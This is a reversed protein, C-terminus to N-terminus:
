LPVAYVGYIETDCNALFILKGMDYISVGHKSFSQAIDAYHYFAIQENASEAAGTSVNWSYDYKNELILRPAATGKYVVAIKYNDNIYSLDKSAAFSSWVPLTVAGQSGYLEIWSYDKEETPIARVNYIVTDATAMLVVKGMNNISVGNTKISEAIDRYNYYATGDQVNDASVNVDWNYNNKDELILKPASNGSYSVAIQYNENIYDMNKSVTLGSWAALHTGGSQYLLVANGTNQCYASTLASVVAQANPYLQNDARNIHGFNEGSAFNDNANNDWLICVFGAEKAKAIYDSAWKVREETNNFDSAGFEGIVVPANKSQQIEKLDNMINNLLQPIYAGYQNNTEYIHPESTDMTFSYPEYAHVSIAVNGANSPINLHSLAEKNDTAHYSPIMLLRNQNMVSSSNRVTNIFVSNLINIYNWAYEDGNGWEVAPDCTQRPENMGEFILHYDYDAFEGSIQEWVDELITKARQLSADNFHAVNIWNEHHVNLIVFMENEYAYNVTKKVYAMWDNDIDYRDAASNYEMHQYWTVPIRVTNFGLAKVTQFLELSPEPNNWATVSQQPTPNDNWYTAELSNGLNWGITMQSTIDWANLKKATDAKIESVSSFCFLITVAIAAASLLFRRIGFSLVPFKKKM